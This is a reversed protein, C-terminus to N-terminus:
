QKSRVMPRASSERSTADTSTLFVCAVIRSMRRIGKWGCTHLRQFKFPQLLAFFQFWVTRPLSPMLLASPVKKQAPGSLFSLIMWPTVSKPFLMIRRTTYYVTMHPHVPDCKNAEDVKDVSERYGGKVCGRPISQCTADLPICQPSELRLQYSPRAM